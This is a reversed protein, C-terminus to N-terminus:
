SGVRQMEVTFTKDSTFELRAHVGAGDGKRDGYITFRGIETSFYENKHNKDIYKVEFVFSHDNGFAAELRDATDNLVESPKCPGGSQSFQSWRV